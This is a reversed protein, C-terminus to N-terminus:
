HRAPRLAAALIGTARDTEGVLAVHISNSAYGITTDQLAPTPSKHKLMRSVLTPTIEGKAAREMLVDTAGRKVSHGSYSDRIKVFAPDATTQVRRPTVSRLHRYVASPTPPDWSNIAMVVVSPLRARIAVAHDERTKGIKNTKTLRFDLVLLGHQRIFATRKLSTIDGLRAACVWALWIVAKMQVTPATRIAERAASPSLPRAKTVPRRARAQELRKKVASALLLMASSDKVGLVTIWWRVHPLLTLGKGGPEEALGRLVRWVRKPSPRALNGGATLLKWAAERGKTM